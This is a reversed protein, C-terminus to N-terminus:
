ILFIIILYSRALYNNLFQVQIKDTYFSAMQHPNEGYRLDFNKSLNINLSEPLKKDDIQFNVIFLQIM